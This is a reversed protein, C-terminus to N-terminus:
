LLFSSASGMLDPRLRTVGFLTAEIEVLLSSRCIEAQLYTVRDADILLRQALFDAALPHDAAHRLYVKFHRKSGGRRDLDPGLGCVRAIGALNVLTCDLQEATNLPAVTAHGRIAATGSIFVTHGGPAPVVTARAFSPARPGFEAPYDYASVQLPSERHGLTGQSAAFVITLCGPQCGVASAAPLQHTFEPGFHREFALSRGRCFAQYNELGGSGVANIAPVYNWIRALHWGQCVQFINEYLRRTTEELESGVAVTTAGLLWPGAKYLSFEGARGAFAAAGFLDEVGSGGLLPLGPAFGGTGGLSILLEPPNAEFFAASASM